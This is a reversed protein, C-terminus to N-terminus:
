DTRGAYSVSSDSNLFLAGIGALQMKASVEVM